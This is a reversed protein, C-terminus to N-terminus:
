SGYPLPTGKSSASPENVAKLPKPKGFLGRKVSYTGEKPNFIETGVVDAPLDDFQALARAAVVVTEVSDNRLSLAVSQDDLNCLFTPFSQSM